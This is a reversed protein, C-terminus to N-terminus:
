GPRSRFVALAGPEHRSPQANSEACVWGRTVPEIRVEIRHADIMGFRQQRAADCGAPLTRAARGDDFGAALAKQAAEAMRLWMLGLAVIGTLLVGSAMYNYVSLMYRRLGADFAEGRATTANGYGAVGSRPDSWNAM